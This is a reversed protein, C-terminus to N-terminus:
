GDLNTEASNSDKTTMLKPWTFSFTAGKGVESDVRIRGGRIEIQKKVIALGMGSGHVTTDGVRQYMQFIREHHMPPIGPGNDSVHFAYRDGEDDARVEIHGGDPDNNYKFANSLLNLLTQEFPTRTTEFVPLNDSVELVLSEPKDLVDALDSVMASVDVSETPEDGRGVRSYDLLGELLSDLRAVRERLKILHERNKEPLRDGADEEIWRSLQGIGRLPSRLDHSAIYAFSDLEENRLALEKAKADLERALDRYRDLLQATRRNQESFVSAASAMEGIEDRRHMFPIPVHTEGKALRVFTQQISVIPRFVFSTFLGAFALIAFILSALGIGAITLTRSMVAALERDLEAEVVDARHRLSASSYTFESAEGAMVVHVLYLYGRTAQVSRLGIREFELLTDLIAAASAELREALDIIGGIENRVARISGLALKLSESDPEVFYESFHQQAESVSRASRLLSAVVNEPITEDALLTEIGHLVTAATRPLDAATLTRRLGREGAVEDFVREYEALHRLMGQFLTRMKADDVEKELATIEDSIGGAIERISSRKSEHGTAIYDAVHLRIEQVDRDIQTARTRVDAVLHAETITSRLTAITICGFVGCGVLIAVLLCAGARVKYRLTRFREPLLM